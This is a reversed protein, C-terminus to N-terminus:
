DAERNNKDATFTKVVFTILVVWELVYDHSLDSNSGLWDSARYSTQACKLSPSQTKM